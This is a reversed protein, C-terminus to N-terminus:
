PAAWHPCGATKAAHGWLWRPGDYNIYKLAQSRLSDPYIQAQTIAGSEDPADDRFVRAIHTGAMDAVLGETYDTIDACKATFSICHVVTYVRLRGQIVQAGLVDVPCGVSHSGDDLWLKRIYFRVITQRQAPSVFARPSSLDWRLGSGLRCSVGARRLDHGPPWRPVQGRRQRKNSEILRTLSNV